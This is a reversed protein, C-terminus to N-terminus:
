ASIPVCATHISDNYDIICQPTIFLIYLHLIICTYVNATLLRSWQERNNYHMNMYMGSTHLHHLRNSDINHNMTTCSSYDLLAKVIFVIYVLLREQYQTFTTMKYTIFPRYVCSHAHTLSYFPHPSM